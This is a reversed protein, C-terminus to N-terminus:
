PAVRWDKALIEPVVLSRVYWAPDNSSSERIYIENGCKPLLLIAIGCSDSILYEGVHSYLWNMAKIIDM